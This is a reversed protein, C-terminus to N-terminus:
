DFEVTGQLWITGKFRRGVIPEGLLNKKNICVELVVDNSEIVLLYMEEMTLHNVVSKVDLIDGM